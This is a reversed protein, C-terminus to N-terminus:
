KRDVQLVCRFKARVADLRVHDNLNSALFNSFRTCNGSRLERWSCGGRRRSSRRWGFLRCRSLGCSGALIVVDGALGVLHSASTWQVGKLTKRSRSEVSFGLVVTPQGLGGLKFLMLNNMTPRHVLWQRWRHCIVRTFDALM